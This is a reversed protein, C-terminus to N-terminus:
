GALNESIPHKPNGNNTEGDEMIDTVDAELARAIIGLTKPRLGRGTIANNLTSRPIGAKKALENPTMCTRALAIELKWKDAKM